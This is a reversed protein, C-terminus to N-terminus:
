PTPYLYIIKIDKEKMLKRNRMKIMLFLLIKLSAIKNM